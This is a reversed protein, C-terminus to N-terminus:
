ILSSLPDKNTTVRNCLQQAVLASFCCLSNKQSSTTRKEEITKYDDCCRLMIFVLTRERRSIKIKREVRLKM